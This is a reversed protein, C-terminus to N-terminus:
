IGTCAERLENCQQKPKSFMILIVCTLGTCCLHSTYFFGHESSIEGNSMTYKNPWM